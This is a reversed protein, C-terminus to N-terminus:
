LETITYGSLTQSNLLLNRGGIEVDEPDYLKAITMVDYYSTNDSLCKFPISSIKDTFLTSANKLTLVGTSVSVGNTSGNVDTWSIGGDLSYQWRLYAIGGQFTPTLTITEPTFTAGGDTSKFIQSSATVDVIKAASGDTGQKACSWSFTKTVTKGDLLVPIDFAGADAQLTVGENVTFTVRNFSKSVTINSASSIDGITFDTRETAGQFIIIDTYYEQSSQVVRSSDTVIQQAENSLIVSFPEISSTFTVEGYAVYKAM